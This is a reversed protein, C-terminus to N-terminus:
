VYPQVGWRNLPQRAEFRGNGGMRALSLNKTYKVKDGRREVMYWKTAIEMPKLEKPSVASPVGVSVVRLAPLSLAFVVRKKKWLTLIPNKQPDGTHVVVLHFEELLPFCKAIEEYEDKSMLLDKSHTLTLIKLSRFPSWSSVSSPHEPIWPFLTTGERLIQSLVLGTAYPEEIHLEAITPTYRIVAPPDEDGATNSWTLLSSILLVFLIGGRLHRLNQLQVRGMFPTPDCNLFRIIYNSPISFVELQPHRELFHLHGWLQSATMTDGWRSSSLPVSVHFTRLNSFVIDQTSGNTFANFLPFFHGVPQIKFHVFLHSINPFRQFINPLIQPIVVAEPRGFLVLRLTHVNPFVPISTAAESPPAGLCPLKIEVIQLNDKGLLRFFTDMTEWSRFPVHGSTCVEQIHTFGDLIAELEDEDTAIDWGGLIPSSHPSDRRYLRMYRAKNKKEPSIAGFVYDNISSGDIVAFRERLSPLDVISLAHKSTRSFSILSPLNLYDCIILILETPLDLLKITPQKSRFGPIRKLLPKM